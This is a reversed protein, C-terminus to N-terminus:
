PQRDQETLTSPDVVIAKPPTLFDKIHQATLMGQRILDYISGVVVRAAQNNEWELAELVAFYLEDFEQADLDKLEAPVQGIGKVATLAAGANGLLITTAEIISIKGDANAKLGDAILAAVAVAAEKTETISPM